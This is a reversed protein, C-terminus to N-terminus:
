VVGVGKYSATKPCSDAAVRKVSFFLSIWFSWPLSAWGHIAAMVEGLPAHLSGRVAEMRSGRYGGIVASSFGWSIM